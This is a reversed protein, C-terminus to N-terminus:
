ESAMGETVLGSQIESEMDDRLSIMFSSLEREANNREADADFWALKANNAKLMLAKLKEQERETIRM